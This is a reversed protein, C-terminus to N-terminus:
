WISITKRVILNQSTALFSKGVLRAMSDETCCIPTLKCILRDISDGLRPDNQRVFYLESELWLQEKEANKEALVLEMRLREAGIKEGGVRARQM